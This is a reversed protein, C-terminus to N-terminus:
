GPPCCSSSGVGFLSKGPNDARFRLVVEGNGWVVVTDRRMPIAPLESENWAKVRQGQADVEEDDDEGSSRYLVQFVHGHLHFPHRGDDDNRITIQVVDDGDAAAAGAVDGRGGSGGDLVFSSTYGGYIKQEKVLGEPASLVTYLTPVKPPTYTVDNFFAYNRGDRLNDMKVVLQIDHEPKTPPPLRPLKDRPIVLIDDIPSFEAVPKAPLLPQELSYVLHGTM